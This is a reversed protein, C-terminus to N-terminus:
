QYRPPYEQHVPGGISYFHVSSLQLPVEFEYMRVMIM